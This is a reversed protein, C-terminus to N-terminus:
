NEVRKLERLMQRLSPNNSDVRLAKEITAIAKNIEGRQHYAVALNSYADIKKPDGNWTFSLLTM